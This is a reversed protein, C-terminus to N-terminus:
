PSTSPNGGQRRGENRGIFALIAAILLLVTAVVWGFSILILGVIASVSMLFASFKPKAIALAAGALAVISLGLAGVGFKGISVAESDGIASGIGGILLAILAGIFGAGAGFIGIILAAIRM